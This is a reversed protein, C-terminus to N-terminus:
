LPKEPLPLEGAYDGGFSCTIGLTAVGQLTEDDFGYQARAEARLHLPGAIRRFVGLGVDAFTGLADSGGLSVDDQGIGTLIYPQWAFARFYHWLVDARRSDANGKAGAPTLADARGALLELSHRDTFRFGMGVGAYADDRLGVAPDMRQGGAQLSLFLSGTPPANDLATVSPPLLLAGLVLALRGLPRSARPAHRRPRTM